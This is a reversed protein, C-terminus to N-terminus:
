NNRRTKLSFGTGAFPDAMNQGRQAANERQKRPVTRKFVLTGIKWSDDPQRAGSKKIGQAGASTSTTSHKGNLRYGRGEFSLEQEVEEEEDESGATTPSQYGVPAEFDVKIM